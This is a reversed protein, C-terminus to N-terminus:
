SGVKASGPNLARLKAMEADIQRSSGVAALERDLASDDSTYDELAGSETLEDLASARASMGEVQDQARQIMQGTSELGRGIGTAAEGIKVQAKAASYNAKMVEKQTRFNEIKQSLLQGNEVLKDQTQQLGAVQRDLVQLQGQVFVKKEVAKHALDERGASMAQGAQTELKLVKDQLNTAQIELRKKQTTVDAIGRKVEVLQDQMKEYGYDLQESPNEAFGLLRSVKAGIVNFFRTILSM